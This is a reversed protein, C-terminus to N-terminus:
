GRDVSGVPYQEHERHGSASFFYHYTHDPTHAHMFFLTWEKNQLLYHACEGLWLNEQEVRELYLEEDGWGLTILDEVIRAPLGPLNKLEEGLGEPYFGEEFQAIPTFYLSFERGDSSLKLLKAM